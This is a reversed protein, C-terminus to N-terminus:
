DTSPRNDVPGVGDLKKGFQLKFFGSYNGLKYQQESPGLVWSMVTFPAHFEDNSLCDGKEVYHM